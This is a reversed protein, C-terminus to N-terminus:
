KSNKTNEKEEITELKKPPIVMRIRGGEGEANHKGNARVLARKVDYEIRNGSLSSGDQDLSANDILFLTENKVSYELRNAVANVPATNVKPVQQFKAPKGTAVIKDSSQPNESDFKGYYVLKEANITLSGQQLIVNGQFTTTSSQVDFVYGDALISMDQRADDPLAWGHTLWLTSAFGLLIKNFTLKNLTM